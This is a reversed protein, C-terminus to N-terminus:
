SRDPMGSDGIVTARKLGDPASRPTPKATDRRPGIGGAVQENPMESAGAPPTFTFEAGTLPPSWTLKTMTFEMVSEVSAELQPPRVTVVTRRRLVMYNTQDVWLTTRTPGINARPERPEPVSETSIVYCRIPAGAFDVEEDTGLMASPVDATLNGFLMSLDPAAPNMGSPATATFRTYQKTTPHYIWVETRDRIMLVERPGIQVEMRFKDPQQFIVTGKLEIKQQLGTGKNEISGIFEARYSQGTHSAQNVKDLIARAAPSDQGYVLVLVFSLSLVVPSKTLINM